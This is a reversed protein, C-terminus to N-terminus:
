NPDQERDSLEKCSNMLKVLKFCLSFFFYFLPFSTVQVTEHNVYSVISFTVDQLISIQNILLDVYRFSSRLNPRKETCPVSTGRTFYSLLRVM